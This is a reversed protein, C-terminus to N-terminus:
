RSLVLSASASAVSKYSCNASVDSPVRIDLVYPQFRRNITNLADHIAIHMMAEMRSANLPDICTAIAPKGANANWDTVADARVRSSWRLSLSLVFACIGLMFKAEEGCIEGNSIFREIEVTGHGLIEDGWITERM